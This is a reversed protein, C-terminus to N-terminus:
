TFLKIILFAIIFGGAIGIIIKLQPILPSVVIFVLFGLPIITILPLRFIMLIMLMFFIAFLGLLIVNGGFLSLMNIYLITELSTATKVV